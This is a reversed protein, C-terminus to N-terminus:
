KASKLFLASFYISLRRLESDLKTQTPMRISLEIHDKTFIKHIVHGSLVTSSSSESMNAAINDGEAQRMVIEHSGTGEDWTSLFASVNCHFLISDHPVEVQFHVDYWGSHHFKESRYRYMTQQESFEQFSEKEKSTLQKAHCKKHHNGAADYCQVIPVPTKERINQARKLIDAHSHKFKDFARDMPERYASRLKKRVVEQIIREQSSALRYGIRLPDSPTVSAPIDCRACHSAPIEYQNYSADCLACSAEENLRTWLDIDNAKQPHFIVALYVVVSTTVM